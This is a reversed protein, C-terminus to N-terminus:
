LQSESQSTRHELVVRLSAFLRFWLFRPALVEEADLVEEPERLAEEDM